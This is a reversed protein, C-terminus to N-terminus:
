SSVNRSGPLVTNASLSAIVSVAPEYGAASLMASFEFSQDIRFPMGLATVNAFTGAGPRRQILGEAELRVMAERVRSRSARFREALEAEAPFAAGATATDFWVSRLQRLLSARRQRQPGGGGASDGGASDVITM